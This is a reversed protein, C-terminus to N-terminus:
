CSFYEYRVLLINMHQVTVVKAPSAHVGELPAGREGRRIEVTCWERRAPDRRHVVSEEGSRSSAGREGRRIKVAMVVTPTPLHHRATSSFFLTLKSNHQIKKKKRISSQFPHTKVVHPFLFPLNNPPCIFSLNLPFLM